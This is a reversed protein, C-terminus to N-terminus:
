RFFSWIIEEKLSLFVYILSVIFEKNNQIQMDNVRKSNNNVTNKYKEDNEAITDKLEQKLANVTSTLEIKDNKLQLLKFNIEKNDKNINIINMEMEKIQSLHKEENTQYRAIDIQMNNIKSTTDTKYAFHKKENVMMKQMAESMEDNEKKLSSIQKTLQKITCNMRMELDKMNEQHTNEKQKLITAYKVKENEKTERITKNIKNEIHIVENMKNNNEKMKLMHLENHENMSEQQLTKYKEDMDHLKKQMSENKAKMENILTIKENLTSNIYVNKENMLNYQSAMTDRETRLKKHLATSDLMLSKKLMNITKIEDNLVHISSNLDFITLDKEKSEKEIMMCNLKMKQFDEKKNKLVIQLNNIKESLELNEKKIAQMEEDKNGGNSRRNLGAAHKWRLWYIYRDQSSKTNIQHDYSSYISLCRLLIKKMKLQKRSNRFWKSFTRLLVENNRYHAMRNYAYSVAHRVFNEQNDNHISHEIEDKWKIFSKKKYRRSKYKLLISLLQKEKKNCVYYMNWWRIFADKVKFKKIIINISNMKIKIFKSQVHKNKWHNFYHNKNNNYRRSRNRRNRYNVQILTANVRRAHVLSQKLWQLFTKYLLVKRQHLNIISLSKNTFSIKQVVDKWHVFNNKITKRKRKFVYRKIKRHFHIQHFAQQLLKRRWKESYSQLITLYTSNRNIQNITHMRWQNISTM